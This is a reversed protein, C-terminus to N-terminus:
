RVVLTLIKDQVWVTKVLAKGEIHGELKADAHFLTLVDQENTGPKIRLKGRVKGNIQVPVEIEDQECLTLDFMPWPANQISPAHGLKEWLEEALHPAFPSLMLLLKEFAGSPVPDFKTLEHSLVMM